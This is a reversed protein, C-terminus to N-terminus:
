TSLDLTKKRLDLTCPTPPSPKSKLNSSGVVIQKRTPPPHRHPHTSKLIYPTSNPIRPVKKLEKNELDARRLLDRLKQNHDKLMATDAESGKAM